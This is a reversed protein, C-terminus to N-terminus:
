YNVTVTFPAGGANASSYSGAAQGAPVNLTGGVYLTGLACGAACSATLTNVAMSNGSGDTVTAGGGLTVAYTYGAEGAVTFAASNFGAGFTTIGGAPTRTPAAAATVVVTGAATNSVALTGFALDATRTISIPTIITATADATASASAQAFAGTAMLLIGVTLIAYRKM